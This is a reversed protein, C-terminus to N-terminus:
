NQAHQILITIKIDQLSLIRPSSVGYSCRWINEQTHSTVHHVMFLSRDCKLYLVCTCKSTNAPESTLLPKKQYLRRMFAILLHIFYKLITRPMFLIALSYM